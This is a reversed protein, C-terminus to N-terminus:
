HAPVLLTAIGLLPWVNWLSVNSNSYLVSYIGMVKYAGVGYKQDIKPCLTYYRSLVRGRSKNWQFNALGYKVAFRMPQGINEAMKMVFHWPQM